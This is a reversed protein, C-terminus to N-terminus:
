RRRLLGKDIKGTSTMPMEEIIEWTKPIKYPALKSRLSKKLDDIKVLSGLKIQIVAHISEGWREDPRGYVAVGIIDSEAAITEEVELPVVNEGGVIILDASRGVIYLYGDQDFYGLDGLKYWGLIFSNTTLNDDNWYKEIVGPGRVVIDGIVGPDLKHGSEDVVKVEVPFLPRGVSKLRASAIAHDEPELQTIVAAETSGYGQVFEVNLVDNAATLDAHSISSGGYAIKRLTPVRESSLSKMKVMMSLQTPMLGLYTASYEEVLSPFHLPDFPGPIVIKCGMQLGACIEHFGMHHLPAPAILVDTRKFGLGIVSAQIRDWIIRRTLCVGKQRGTTGSTYIIQLLDDDNRNRNISTDLAYSLLNNYEDDKGELMIRLRVGSKTSFEEWLEEYILVEPKCHDIQRQLEGITLSYNLAVFTLGSRCCAAFIEFHEPPNRGILAVRSGENVGQSKLVNALLTARRDIQEYSLSRDGSLIADTNGFIEAARDFFDPLMM